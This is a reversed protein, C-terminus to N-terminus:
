GRWSRLSWAGCGWAEETMLRAPYAFIKEEVRLEAGLYIRSAQRMVAKAEDVISRIDEVRGECLVADHIPAIIRLGREIGLCIAIRLIEAGGSQLLFNRVTRADHPTLHHTPFRLSWGLDTSIARNLRVHSVLSDSWEWFTAFTSHHKDLLAQAEEQSRDIRTALGDAGQGYQTALVCQKFSERVTGHTDKTAGQPAAGEQIAFNMYPDGSEYAKIMNADQSLIGAMMFEEEEFDLYACAWGPRPLIVNRVWVSKNFPFKSSSPANRATVTAFPMISTRCRGDKGVPLKPGLKMDDLTSMLEHLPLIEPHIAAMAKRTESDTALRGTPTRPWLWGKKGVYAEFKEFKFTVGKYIDYVPNIREILALKLNPWYKELDRVLTVDVPIGYREMAAVSKAFRGRQLSQQFSREPDEPNFPLLAELLKPL